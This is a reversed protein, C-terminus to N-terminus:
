ELNKTGHKKGKMYYIRFGFEGAMLLGILIYSILGNYLMWARASLFVTYLAISANLIFFCCWVQTVKHCYTIAYQPLDPNTIRAFREIVSPPFKLSFAFVALLSASILVPYLKLFIEDNYLWLGSVLITACVLFANRLLRIKQTNFQFLASLILILSLVKPSYGWKLAFFVAFPYAIALVLLVAKKM